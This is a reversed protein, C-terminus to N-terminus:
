VIVCADATCALEKSSTTTDTKEYSQLKSWDVNKPMKEVLSNYIAEDCDQFPAQQYVHDNFPLFSLGSISEFNQYVWDGVAMWEDEKVNITVSPKHECFFQQYDHWLALQDLATIKTRTVCNEPSKMPFSFVTTQAPHLIEDENPFGADIMMRTLPDKKDGRVTRVYHMSHRPHIGSSTDTLASVTGSPKVCTIAVSQNIGLEKAYQKNITVAHVRLSTLLDNLGKGRTYTLPNDYIGTMSVGLLREEECNKKWASPLYRFNTLTSQWTGLIAALEIKEKLTEETDTPRVVVESLNCLQRPRLVIESCPNSGWEHGSDRRGLEECRTKAALRSFIGREGSRSEYLSLWEKMFLGMQPQEGGVYSINALARQPNENWWTGSKATRMLDDNFDSLSILASRRVGGVVVIDAIKCVLDHCDLTSLKRGSNRKFLEICFQFLRVLPDPGSSRGGFTKLPAGSPRLKSVDWSPVQGAWLLALLEKLSKAWGLKSDDVVIVTRSPILDDPIAPLKSVYKSEVSFGVGVGCMLLYLSEDFASPKDIPLYSCNYGSAHDRALAPGATMLTRMSPMVEQNFVATRLKARLAKPIQYDLTKLHGDFFTFYRDVTEGWTERRNQEPLWRAYRSQHIYQRFLDDLFTSQM